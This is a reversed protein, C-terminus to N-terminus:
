PAHWTDHTDRTTHRTDHTTTYQGIVGMGKAEGQRLSEPHVLDLPCRGPRGVDGRAHRFGEPGLANLASPVGLVTQVMPGPHRQVEHVGLGVDGNDLEGEDVGELRAEVKPVGNLRV